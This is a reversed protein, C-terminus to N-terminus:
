NPIDKEQKHRVGIIGLGTGIGAVLTPLDVAQLAVWVTGGDAMAGIFVQGAHALAGLILFVGGWIAKSKKM